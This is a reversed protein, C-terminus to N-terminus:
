KGGTTKCYSLIMVDTVRLYSTDVGYPFFGSIVHWMFTCAIYDLTQSSGSAWLHQLMEMVVTHASAKALWAGKCM